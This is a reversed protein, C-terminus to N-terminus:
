SLARTKLQERQSVQQIPKKKPSIVKKPVSIKFSDFPQSTQGDLNPLEALKKDSNDWKIIMPSTVKEMQLHEMLSDSSHRNKPKKKNSDFIAIKKPHDDPSKKKPKKKPTKFTSEEQAVSTFVIERPEVKSAMPTGVEQAAPAEQISNPFTQVRKKKRGPSQTKIPPMSVKKVLGKKPISVPPIVKMSQAANRKREGSSEAESLNSQRGPSDM